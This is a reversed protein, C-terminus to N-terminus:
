RGSIAPDEVAPGYDVASVTTSVGIRGVGIARVSGDSLAFVAVACCGGSRTVLGVNGNAYRYRGERHISVRVVGAHGPDRRDLGATAVTLREKCDSTEELVHTSTCSAVEAGISWGDVVTDAPM